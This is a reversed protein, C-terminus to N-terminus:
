LIWHKLNCLNLYYYVIILEILMNGAPTRSHGWFQGKLQEALFYVKGILAEQYRQDFGLTLDIPCM